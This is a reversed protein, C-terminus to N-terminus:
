LLTEGQLFERNRAMQEVLEEAETATLGSVELVKQWDTAVADPDNQYAQALAAVGDYWVYNKFLYTGQEHTPLTDLQAIAGEDSWDVAESPVYSIYGKAEGIPVDMNNYVMVVWRYDQNAKLLPQPQVADPLTAPLALNMLGGNASVEWEQAYVLHTPQSVEGDAPHVEELELRVIRETPSEPLYVLLQPSPNVTVGYLNHSPVLAVLEAHAAPEGNGSQGQRTAGPTTREASTDVKPTFGAQQWQDLGPLTSPNPVGQAHSPQVTIPLTTAATLLAVTSSGLALWRLKRIIPTYHRMFTQVGLTM